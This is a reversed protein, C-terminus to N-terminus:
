APQTFRLDLEIAGGGSNILHYSIQELKKVRAINLEDIFQNEEEPNETGMRLPVTM